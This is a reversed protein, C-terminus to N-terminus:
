SQNEKDDKARTIGLRKACNQVIKMDEGYGWPDGDSYWSPFPGVAGGITKSHSIYDRLAIILGRLTGGQSFGRWRGNTYHTYIKDGRYGDIFWIRGRCDVEFHSVAGGHHFFKRGTYAITMLLENANDARIRKDNMKSM